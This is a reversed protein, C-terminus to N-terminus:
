AFHCNWRWFSVFFVTDEIPVKTSSVNVSLYSVNEVTLLVVFFYQYTAKQPLTMSIWLSFVKFQKVCYSLCYWWSLYPDTLTAKMQITVSYYKM